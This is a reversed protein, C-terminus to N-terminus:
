EPSEDPRAASLSPLVLVGSDPSLREEDQPQSSAGSQPSCVETGNRTTKACRHREPPNVGCRAGVRHGVLGDQPARPRFHPPDARVWSRIESNAFLRDESIQSISPRYRARPTLFQKLDSEKRRQTRHQPVDGASKPIRVFHMLRHPGNRTAPPSAASRSRDLKRRQKPSNPIQARRSDQKAPHPETGETKAVFKQPGASQAHQSARRSCKKRHQGSGKCSLCTCADCRKENVARGDCRGATGRDLPM